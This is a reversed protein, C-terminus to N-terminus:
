CTASFTRRSPEDARIPEAPQLNKGGLAFAISDLVSSKGAGNRGRIVVVPEGNAQIEVAVLRKINEAKLLNIKM